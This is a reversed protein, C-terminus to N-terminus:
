AFYQDNVLTSNRLKRCEPCCFIDYGYLAVGEVSLSLELVDGEKCQLTKFCKDGSLFADVDRELVIKTKDTHKLVLNCLGYTPSIFGLGCSNDDNFITRAVSKFYGHSGLATSFIVGDAICQKMYLKENVYVSFRMACTPNASKWVVESVPAKAQDPFVKCEGNLSCDIFSHKSYKLSLRDNASDVLDELIRAHRECRGYNRIPIIGKKCGVQSIVKLLEGDGGYAISMHNATKSSNFKVILDLDTNKSM